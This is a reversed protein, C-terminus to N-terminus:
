VFMFEKIYHGAVVHMNCLACVFVHLTDWKISDHILHADVDAPSQQNMGEYVYLFNANAFLLALNMM